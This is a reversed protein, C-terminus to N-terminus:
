LPSPLLSMRSPLAVVPPSISYWIFPAATDAEAKMAEGPTPQTTLQPVQDRRSWCLSPFDAGWLSKRRDSAPRRDPHWTLRLDPVTAETAHKFHDFM